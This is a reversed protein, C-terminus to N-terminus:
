NHKNQENNNEARYPADIMDGCRECYTYGDHSSKVIHLQHGYMMCMTRNADRLINMLQRREELEITIENVVIDEGYEVWNTTWVINYKDAWERNPEISIQGKLRVVIKPKTDNM